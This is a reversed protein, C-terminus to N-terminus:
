RASRTARPRTKRGPSPTIRVCCMGPEPQLRVKADPDLEHVLGGLLELNMGCVLDTHGASLEHFPCNRLAIEGGSTRPEYGVDRLVQVLPRDDDTALAAGRRRALRALVTKVPRGKAAAEEVASALLDAALSYRREPLSVSTEGAARRYLKSPRGAGPGTRGSTRQYRVEVLGSTALKDLHFAAVTRPVGAVRAADDRGVWDDREVLLEFLKARLPHDLAAIRGIPDVPM